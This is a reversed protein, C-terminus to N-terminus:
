SQADSRETYATNASDTIPSEIPADNTAKRIITTTSADHVKREIWAWHVSIYDKLAEQHTKYPIGLRKAVFLQTEIAKQAPVIHEKTSDFIVDTPTYHIIVVDDIDVDYVGNADSDDFKIKALDIM